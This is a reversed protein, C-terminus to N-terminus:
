NTPESATRYVLLRVRWRGGRSLIQVNATQTTALPLDTLITTVPEELGHGAGGIGAVVRKALQIAEARTAFDRVLTVSSLRRTCGDRGPVDTFLFTDCCLCDNAQVRELYSFTATGSCPQEGSAESGWTIPVPWL